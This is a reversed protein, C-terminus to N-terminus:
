HARAVVAAFPAVRWIVEPAFGATHLMTLEQGLPFYVDEGAWAAFYGETETHSYSLRLHERWRERELEALRADASVFCDVSILLGGRGLARRCDEYFQQKREASRVHHLALSAVIADCKPLQTELFSSQVFSAMAGLTALRHRAMELIAADEDIAVVKADSRVSVCRAAFAGTGTGLDVIVPAAVDLARLASAGADLMQEYGPIFTRIRADYDDLRINLHSAVSM